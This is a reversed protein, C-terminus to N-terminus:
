RIFDLPNPFNIKSKRSKNIRRGRLFKRVKHPLEIFTVWVGQSIFLFLILTAATKHVPPFELVPFDIELPLGQVSSLMWLIIFLNTLGKM